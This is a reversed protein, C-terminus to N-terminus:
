RSGAKLEGNPRHSASSLKVVSALEGTCTLPEAPQHVFQIRIRAEDNFFRRPASGRFIRDLGGPEKTGRQALM